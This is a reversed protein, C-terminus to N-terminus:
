PIDPKRRNQKKEAHYKKREVRKRQSSRTPKTPRRKKPVILAQEVRHKCKKLANNINQRQSRSEDSHIVVEGETTLHLKKLLLKRQHESLVLSKKVNWRLVVKTNTKNVHQGGSGGSLSTSLQLEHKPIFFAKNIQIGTLVINECQVSLKRRNVILKVVLVM